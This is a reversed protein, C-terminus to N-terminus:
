KANELSFHSPEIAKIRYLYNLILDGMDEDFARYVTRNCVKKQLSSLFQHHFADLANEAEQVLHDKVMNPRFFATCILNHKRFVSMEIDLGEIVIRRIKGVNQEGFMSLAAIFQSILDIKLTPDIQFSYLIDGGTRCIYIGLLYKQLLKQIYRCKKESLQPPHFRACFGM